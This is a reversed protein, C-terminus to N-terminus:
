MFNHSIFFTLYKQLVWALVDYDCGKSSGLPHGRAVLCPPVLLGHFGEGERFEEEDGDQAEHKGAAEGEARIVLGGFPVAGLFPRM